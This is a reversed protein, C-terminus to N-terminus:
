GRGAGSAPARLPQTCDSCCPSPASHGRAALSVGGASPSCAGLPPRAVRRGESMLTTVSLMWTICTRMVRLRMAPSGGSAVM